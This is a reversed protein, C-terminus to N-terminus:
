GRGGNAFIRYRLFQVAERAALMGDHNRDCATFLLANKASVESMELVGDHNRDVVRLQRTM